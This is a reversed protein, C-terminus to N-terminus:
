RMNSGKLKKGQLTMKMSKIRDCHRMDLMM